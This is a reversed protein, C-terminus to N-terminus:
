EEVCQDAPRPELVNEAIEICCCTSPNGQGDTIEYTGEERVAACKVECTEGDALAVFPASVALFAALTTVRRISNM